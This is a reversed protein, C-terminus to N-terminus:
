SRFSADRKEYAEKKFAPFLVGAKIKRPIFWWM